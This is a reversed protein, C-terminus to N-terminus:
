FMAAVFFQFNYRRERAPKQFTAACYSSSSSSSICVWIACFGISRASPPHAHTASIARAVILPRPQGLGECLALCKHTTRVRPIGPPLRRVQPVCLEMIASTLIPREVRLAGQARSGPLPGPLAPAKEEAESDCYFAFAGLISMMDTPQKHGLLGELDYLQSMFRGDFALTAVCDDELTGRFGECPGGDSLLDAAHVGFLAPETRKPQHDALNCQHISTAAPTSQGFSEGKHGGKIWHFLENTIRTGVTNNSRVPPNTL